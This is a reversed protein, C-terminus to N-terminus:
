PERAGLGSAVLALGALATLAAASGAATSRDVTGEENLLLVAGLLTVALGAALPDSRRASTTM